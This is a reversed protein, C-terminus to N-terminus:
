LQYFKNSILDNDECKKIFTSYKVPETISKLDDLNYKSTTSTNKCTSLNIYIDSGVLVYGYVKIYSDAEEDLLYLEDDDYLKSKLSNLIKEENRYNSELKSLNSSTYIVSDKRFTEKSSSPKKVLFEDRHTSIFNGLASYDYDPDGHFLPVTVKMQYYDYIFSRESLNYFDSMKRLLMEISVKTSELIQSLKIIHDLLQYLHTEPKVKYVVPSLIM